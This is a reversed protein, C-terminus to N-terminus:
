FDLDAGTELTKSIAEKPFEPHNEIVKSFAEERSLGKNELKKFEDMLTAAATDAYWRTVNYPDCAQPVDDGAKKAANVMVEPLRKEVRDAYFAPCEVLVEDHVTIILDAQCEKLEEDRFIDVMAMKTLSAASNHTILGNVVFYGRETNCVDYMDIFDNTITINKITTVQLGQWTHNDKVCQKTLATKQKESNIFGIREAFLKSDMRKIDICTRDKYQRIFNRIGLMNLAMSFKNVIPTFNAQTGFVLNINHNSDASCGDGDFFGSIFGCLLNSNLMFYNHLDHKIDLYICEEVLSKSAIVISYIKQNKKQSERISYKWPINTTIWDLIYLEHSAVLFTITSGGDARLTYSGDSALRGLLQGRIFDNKIDDFSYNNQNVTKQYNIGSITKLSVKNVFDPTKATYILRDQKKLESLKKFSKKGSTEIVLFKHDPSCIITNGTGTTLICKQKKGSPLVVASSWGDGDFVKITQNALDGIKKFGEKTCITSNYDLCGQIRANFCQREAQAIKGTWAALKVPVEPISKPVFRGYKSIYDSILQRFKENEPIKITINKNTDLYEYNSIIGQAVQLDKLIKERNTARTYKAASAKDLMVKPNSAIKQLNDFSSNFMEKNVQYDPFKDSRVLHYANSLLVYCDLIQKWVLDPSNKDVHDKCILIPNFNDIKFVLETTYPDLNIDSLRRRRGVFDEVYGNKKLFEKSQDIATKVGTFKNFFNNLLKEGEEKSKNLRAGATAGGMGYTAALNLVKGVSRREKGAKNLHTKKGCIVKKGDIEIETGEPYFELNDEYNNDFASQAIMAYLDKGSTYAEYMTSDGSLYTTMRPEQASYDSGIIKYKIRANVSGM